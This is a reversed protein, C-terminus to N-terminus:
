NHGVRQLGMSQLRGPKETWPIKWALISFHTEMEKELPDERGLSQVQTERMAPLRKVTQAVLSAGHLQITTEHAYPKVNLTEQHARSTTHPAYPWRKWVLGNPSKHDASYLTSLPDLSCVIKFCCPRLFIMSTNKHIWLFCYLPKILFCQLGKSM